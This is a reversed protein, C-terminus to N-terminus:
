RKGIQLAQQYADRVRDIVALNAQYSRQAILLNTMEETIDVQPMTVMGNADALPHGPDYVVPAEGGKEAIGAVAVGQGVGSGDEVSAAIVERARYPEQGPARVTNLNAMNDSIADLWFRSLTAGSVANDIAGFMGM